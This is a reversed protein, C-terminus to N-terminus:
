NKKFNKLHLQGGSQGSVEGKEGEDGSFKRRRTGEEEKM